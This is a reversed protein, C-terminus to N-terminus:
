LLTMKFFNTGDSIQNELNWHYLYFNMKVGVFVEKRFRETGRFAEPQKGKNNCIGTNKAKYLTNDIEILM